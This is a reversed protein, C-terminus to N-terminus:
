LKFSWVMVGFSPLTESKKILVDEFWNVKKKRSISQYLDLNV